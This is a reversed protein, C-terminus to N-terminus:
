SAVEPWPLAVGRLAPIDVKAYIATTDLRRHGLVDAIEKLSAGRRLMHTALTHRLLHAGRSPAQIGARQLALRVAHGVVHSRIPAGAACGHLVFLHRDQTPPRGSRLYSFIAVGVARPLPLVDSRRTKRVRVHLTAARWDIDDLRLDAVESARLGLACLCLLIARDRCRRATAGDLSAVLLRLQDESLHRPLTSLRRHAVRPVAAELRADCPGEVRLFQFFSRLSTAALKVTSTRYRGTAARVFSIVDPAVIKSVDVAADGFVSRLFQRVYRACGPLTQERAGRVRCLHQTFMEVFASCAWERQVTM